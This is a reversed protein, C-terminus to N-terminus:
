VTTTEELSASPRRASLAPTAAEGLVEEEVGGGELDTIAADNVGGERDKIAKELLHARM